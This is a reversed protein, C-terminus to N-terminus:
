VNYKNLLGQIDKVGCIDIFVTVPNYEATEVLHNYIFDDYITEIYCSIYRFLLSKFFTNNENPIKYLQFVKEIPLMFGYSLSIRPVMSKNITTWHTDIGSRCMVYHREKTDVPNGDYFTNCIDPVQIFVNFRVHIQGSINNDDTHMPIRSGPMIFTILDRLPTHSDYGKLQEKNLIRQKIKFLEIPINKTTLDFKFDARGVPIYSCLFDKNYIFKLINLQEKRTMIEGRDYM